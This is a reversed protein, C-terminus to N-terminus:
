EEDGNENQAQPPFMDELENLATERAMTLQNIRLLSEPLAELKMFVILSLLIKEHLNCRMEWYTKPANCAVLMNDNEPRIIKM